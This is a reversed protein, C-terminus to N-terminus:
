LKAAYAPHGALDIMELTFHCTILTIKCFKFCDDCVKKTNFELSVSFDFEADKMHSASINDDNLCLLKSGM